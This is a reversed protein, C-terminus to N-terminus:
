AHFREGEEYLIIVDPEGPERIAATRHHVHLIRVRGAVRPIKWYHGVKPLSEVRYNYLDNELEIYGPPDANNRFQVAVTQPLECSNM